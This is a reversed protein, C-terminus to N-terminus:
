RPVRWGAPCPWFEGSRVTPRMLRRYICGTGDAAVLMFVPLDIVDDALRWYPSRRWDPTSPYEEVRVVERSTPTAAPVPGPEPSRGGCSLVALVVCAALVWLVLVWVLSRRM